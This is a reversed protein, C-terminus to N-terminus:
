RVPFGCTVVQKPLNMTGSVKRTERVESSVDTAGFQRKLSTLSHGLGDRQLSARWFVAQCYRAHHSLIRTKHITHTDVYVYDNHLAPAQERKEPPLKSEREPRPLKSGSEPRFPQERKGLPPAQEGKGPPFTAELM